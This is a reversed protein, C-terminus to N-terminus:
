NSSMVLLLDLSKKCNNESKATMVNKVKSGSKELKVNEVGTEIGHCGNM